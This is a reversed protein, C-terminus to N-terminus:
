YLNYNIEWWWSFNYLGNKLQIPTYYYYLNFAWNLKKWRKNEKAFPTYKLWIDAGISQYQIKEFVVYYKYGALFKPGFDRIDLNNIFLSPSQSGYGYLLKGAIIGEIYSIGLGLYVNYRTRSQRRWKFGNQLLAYEEFIEVGYYKYNLNSFPQYKWQEYFQDSLARYFSEDYSIADSYTYFAYREKYIGRIGLYFRSDVKKSIGLYGGVPLLYNFKLGTHIVYKPSYYWAMTDKQQAIVTTSILISILLIIAQPKM